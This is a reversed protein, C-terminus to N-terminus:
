SIPLTSASKNLSCGLYLICSVAITTAVDLCVCAADSSDVLLFSYLTPFKSSSSTATLKASCVMQVWHLLKRLITVSMSETYSTADHVLDHARETEFYTVNKKSRSVM